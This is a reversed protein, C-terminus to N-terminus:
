KLGAEKIIEPIKNQPVGTLLSIALHSKGQKRYKVVEKKMKTTVRIARM